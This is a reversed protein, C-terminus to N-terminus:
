FCLLSGNLHSRLPWLYTTLLEDYYFHDEFGRIKEQHVSINTAYFLLHVQILVSVFGHSINSLATKAISYINGEPVM